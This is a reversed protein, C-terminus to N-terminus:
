LNQPRMFGGRPFNTMQLPQNGSAQALLWQGRAPFCYMASFINVRLDTEGPQPQWGFGNVAKIKGLALYIYNTLISKPLGLTVAM